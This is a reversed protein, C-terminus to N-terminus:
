ELVSWWDGIDAARLYIKKRRDNKKWVKMTKEVVNGKFSFVFCMKMNHISTEAFSLDGTFQTM